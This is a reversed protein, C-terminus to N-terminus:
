AAAPKGKSLEALRRRAEEIPRDYYTYFVWAMAFTLVLYVVMYPLRQMSSFGQTYYNFPIFWIWHSLYLVYSIDGLSRDLKDSKVRVSNALMPILLLCATESFRLHYTSFSDRVASFLSPVAYHVAMVLFFLGTCLVETRRKFTIADKHLCIGIIFYVLYVAVTEHLISRNFFVEVVLTVLGFFVVSAIRSAKNNLLMLLVPVLIYFQLEIDLSWAPAIPQFPLLNYGLLTLNSFWFHAKEVVSFNSVTHAATPDYFMVLVAALIAFLLYVPFLRYVRSVYFEQVPSDLKKYKNDYMLSIWYGSLIFFCYVALTGVFVVRAVHFVVVLSALIFRLLGPKIM